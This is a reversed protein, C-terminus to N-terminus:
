CVSLSSWNWIRRVQAPGSGSVSSGRWVPGSGSCSTALVLRVSCSGELGMGSPGPGSGLGDPGSGSLVGGLRISRSGSVSCVLDSGAGGVRSRATLSLLEAQAPAPRGMTVGTNRPRTLVAMLCSSGALVLSETGVTRGM